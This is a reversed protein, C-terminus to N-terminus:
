KYFIGGKRMDIHGTKVVGGRKMYGMKNRVPTPLKKLGTQNANPQALGGKAFPMKPLTVPKSKRDAASQASKRSARSVEESQMKEFDKVQRDLMNQMTKKRLGEPMDDIRRQMTSLKNATDAQKIDTASVTMKKAVSGKKEVVKAAAENKRVKSKEAAAKLKQEAEEMAAKTKAPVDKTRVGVKPKMDAILNDAMAKIDSLAAKEADGKLKPSEKIANRANTAAKRVETADAAKKLAGLLGKLM